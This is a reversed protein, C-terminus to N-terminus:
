RNVSFGTFIRILSGQLERADGGFTQLPLPRPGNLAIRSM